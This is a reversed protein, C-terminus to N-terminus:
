YAICLRSGGCQWDEQRIDFRLMVRKSVVVSNFVPFRYISTPPRTSRPHCYAPNEMDFMVGNDRDDPGDNINVIVFQSSSISTRPLRHSSSRQQSALVGRKCSTVMHLHIKQEAKPAKGAPANHEMRGLALIETRQCALRGEKEASYLLPM